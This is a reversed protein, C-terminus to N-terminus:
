AKTPVRMSNSSQPRPKATPKAQGVPKASSTPKAPKVPKASLTQKAGYFKRTGGFVYPNYALSTPPPRHNAPDNKDGFSMNLIIEKLEDFQTPTPQTLSSKYELLQKQIDNIGIVKYPCERTIKTFLYELDLWFQDLDNKFKSLEFDMMVVELGVAQVTRQLTTYKVSKVSSEKLLFNQLNTDRHIFQLKMYAEMLMAVIQLLCSQFLQINKPEWPYYKMNPSPIYEMLIVEMTNGKGNCIWRPTSEPYNEISDACTFYCIYNLLGPIGAQHLRQAVEYEYRLNESTKAIKVVIWTQNNLLGELLRRGSMEKKLPDLTKLLQVSELWSKTTGTQNVKDQCNIKTKFGSSDGDGNPPLIASM